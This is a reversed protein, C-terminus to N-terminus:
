LFWCFCAIALLELLGHSLAWAMKLFSTMSFKHIHKFYCRQVSNTDTFIHIIDCCFLNILNILHVIIVTFRLFVKQISANTSIVKLPICKFRETIGRHSSALVEIRSKM